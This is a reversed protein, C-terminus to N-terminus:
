HMQNFLEAQRPQNNPGHRLVRSKYYPPGRAPSTPPVETSVGLHRLIRRIAEPDQVLAHLKM